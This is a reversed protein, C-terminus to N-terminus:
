LWSDVLLLNASFSQLIASFFIPLSRILLSRNIFPAHLPLSNTHYDGTKLKSTYPISTNITPPVQQQIRNM